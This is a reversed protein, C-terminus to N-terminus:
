FDFYAFVMEIGKLSRLNVVGAFISKCNNDLCLCLKNCSLETAGTGCGVSIIISEHGKKSTNHAKAITESIM